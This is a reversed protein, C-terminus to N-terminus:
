PLSKFMTFCEPTIGDDRWVVTFQNGSAYGVSGEPGAGQGELLQIARSVAKQDDFYFSFVGIEVSPKEEYVANVVYLASALTIPDVLEARTLM